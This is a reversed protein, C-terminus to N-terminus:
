VSAQDNQREVGRLKVTGVVLACGLYEIRNTPSRKSSSNCFSFGMPQASNCLMRKRHLFVPIEPPLAAGFHNGPSARERWEGWGRRERRWPCKRMRDESFPPSSCDRDLNSRVSGSRNIPVLGGHVESSRYTIEEIRSRGGREQLPSV